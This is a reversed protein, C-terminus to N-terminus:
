GGPFTIMIKMRVLEPYYVELGKGAFYLIVGLLFIAPIAALVAKVFFAMLRFFPVDFRQVSAPVPDDGYVVPAPRRALYSPPDGLTTDITRGDRDPKDRERAERAARARKEKERRLTRPLDDFDSDATLPFNADTM